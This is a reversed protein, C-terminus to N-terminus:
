LAAVYSPARKAGVRKRLGGLEAAIADRVRERLIPLDAETMGKTPIPALVSVKAKAHGFWKSGKPRCERTGAIALPLVPVQTEIALRFAGDRFPLLEGNKSRTGEPFMMISIGGGIARKCEDLMTRVSDGNGRVLPIDGGFKMTWGILPVRFLEEKAVWRMDWPLHCLLFPDATSEHNAVVVYPKHDIDAPADGEVKFRWLPTLTSSLWGLRRMWRGPLRQTPDGKHRLHSVGMIPLMGVLVAGFEAYTYVGLVAHKMSGSLSGM